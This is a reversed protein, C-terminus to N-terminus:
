SSRAQVLAGQRVRVTSGVFARGFNGRNGLVIRGGPAYVVASVNSRTGASFVTNSSTRAVNVRIAEARTGNTGGLVGRSQIRVTGAVGIQCASACLLQGRSNVQISRFVYTGGALVLVGDSGIRLNGYAGPPAPSTSGGSPIRLNTTGPVVQVPPLQSTSVIPLTVAQCTLTSSGGRLLLCFLSDPVANNRLKITRGVVTGLVRVGQGVITTGNNSGVDGDIARVNNQLTVDGLGFVAYDFPSSPPRAGGSQAHGPAAWALATVVMGVVMARRM